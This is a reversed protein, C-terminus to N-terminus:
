GHAAERERNRRALEGALAWWATRLMLRLHTTHPWEPCRRLYRIRAKLATIIVVGQDPEDKWWEYPLRIGCIEWHLERVYPYVQVRLQRNMPKAYAM